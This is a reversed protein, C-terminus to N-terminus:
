RILDLIRRADAAYPFNPNLTLARTLESRAQALEGARELAFGLHYHYIPNGPAAAVAERLYPLGRAPLEKRVYIWGLVDAIVPDKPSKQRSTEALRLAVDLNEVQDAYLAALKIPIEGADTGANLVAEYLLRAEATKGMSDLVSGLAAKLPISAPQKEVARDLVAKAEDRRNDQVLIDAYLRAAEVHGPDADLISRLARDAGSRDGAARAVRAALLLYAPQGPNSAAAQDVRSKVGAAKGAKIELDVLGGLAPLDNPNSQLARLFTARAADTNGRGQQIVAQLTLVETSSAEPGTVTALAREASAFQGLRIAATALLIAADADGPKLRVAQTAVEAAVEARGFSLALSALAKAVEANTTDRRWLATFEDLASKGNGTAELSRALVTRAELLDPADAIVARAIPIADDARGNALLAQAKVLRAKADTPTKALVKEAASMALDPKGLRLQIEGTRLAASGDADGDRAVEDLLRLANDIRDHAADFDAMVLRSERDGTAAAISLYHTADADRGRQQYFLGLARSLFAHAPADDAALKLIGAGEDGKGTIWLFGALGLRADYHKPDAAYAQRYSKEAEADDSQVVAQRVHARAGDFTLGDRMGEEVRLLGYTSTLMRAKANAFLVMLQVNSPDATLLPQVRALADDFRSQNNLADVAQIQVARNGPMLDAALIIHRNAQAWQQAGRHAEAAKMRLEGDNPDSQVAQDFAKAADAFKKQSLLADGRRIADAKTVAPDATGCAPALAAVAIMAVPALRRARDLWTHLHRM